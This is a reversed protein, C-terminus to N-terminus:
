HIEEKINKSIEKYIKFLNNTEINVFLIAGGSIDM